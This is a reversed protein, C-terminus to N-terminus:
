SAFTECIVQMLVHFEVIKQNGRRERYCHSSSGVASKEKITLSGQFSRMVVVIGTVNAKVAGTGVECKVANWGGRRERLIQSQWIIITAVQTKGFSDRKGAQSATRELRKCKRGSGVVVERDLKRITEKSAKTVAHSKDQM